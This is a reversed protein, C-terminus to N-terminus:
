TDTSHFHFIGLLTCDIKSVLGGHGDYLSWTEDDQEQYGTDSLYQKLLDFSEYYGQFTKVVEIQKLGSQIDYKFGVTDPHINWHVLGDSYPKGDHLERLQYIFKDFRMLSKITVTFVYKDDLKPDGSVFEGTWPLDTSLVDDLTVPDPDVLPVTRSTFRITADIAISPSSANAASLLYIRFTGTRKRGTKKAMHSLVTSSRKDDVSLYVADTKIANHM